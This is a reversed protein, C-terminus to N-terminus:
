DEEQNPKRERHKHTYEIAKNITEKEESPDVNIRGDKWEYRPWVMKFIHYLVLYPRTNFMVLRDQNEEELQNYMANGLWDLIQDFEYHDLQQVEGEDHGCHLCMHEEGAKYVTFQNCKTCKFYQRM